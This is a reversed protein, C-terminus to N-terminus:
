VAGGKKLVWIVLCAVALVGLLGAVPGNFIAMVLALGLGFLGFWLWREVPHEFDVPSQAHRALKRELKRSLKDLKKAAKPNQAALEAKQVELKEQLLLTTAASSIANAAPASLPSHCLCLACLAALFTKSM